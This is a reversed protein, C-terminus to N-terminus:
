LLIVRLLAIGGRIRQARKIARYLQQAEWLNM